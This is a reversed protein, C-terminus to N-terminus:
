STAYIRIYNFAVPVYDIGLVIIGSKYTSDDFSRVFDGNLFIRFESGKAIVTLRNMGKPVFGSAYTNALLQKVNDNNSKWAVVEGQTSVAVHDSCNQTSGPCPPNSYRLYVSMASWESQQQGIFQFETEFVYDSYETHWSPYTAAHPASLILMGNQFQSGKELSWVGTDQDFTDEYLLAGYDSLSLKPLSLTINQTPPIEALTETLTITGSPGPQLAPTQKPPATAVTEYRTWVFATVIFFIALIALLIKLKRHDSGLIQAFVGIIAGALFLIIQFFLDPISSM